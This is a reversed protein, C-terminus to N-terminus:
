GVVPLGMPAIASLGGSREVHRGAIAGGFWFPVYDTYAINYRDAEKFWLTNAAVHGACAGITEYPYYVMGFGGAVVVAVALGAGTALVFGVGSM